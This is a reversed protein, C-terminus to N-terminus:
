KAQAAKFVREPQTRVAKKVAKVPAAVAPTAAESNYGATRETSYPPASDFNGTGTGCASLALATGAICLTAAFKNM